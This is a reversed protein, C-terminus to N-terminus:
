VRCVNHSGPKKRRSQLRRPAHLKGEAFMQRHQPFIGGAIDTSEASFDRRRADAPDASFHNQPFFKAVETKKATKRSVSKAL